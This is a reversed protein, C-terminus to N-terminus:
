LANSIAHEKFMREISGNNDLIWEQFPYSDVLLQVIYDADKFKQILFIHTRAFQHVLEVTFTHDRLDVIINFRGNNFSDIHGLVNTDCALDITFGIAKLASVISKKM